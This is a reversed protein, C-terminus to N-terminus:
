HEVALEARAIINGLVGGVHCPLLPKFTQDGCPLLNDGPLSLANAEGKEGMGTVRPLLEIGVEELDCGLTVGIL